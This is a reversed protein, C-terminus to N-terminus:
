QICDAEMFYIYLLYVNLSMLCCIFLFIELTNLTFFTDIGFAWTDRLASPSTHSWWVRHGPMMKRNLNIIWLAILHRTFHSINQNPPHHSVRKGSTAYWETGKIKRGPAQCLSLSMLLCRGSSLLKTARVM